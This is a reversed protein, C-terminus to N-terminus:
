WRVATFYELSTGGTLLLAALRRQGMLRQARAIRAEREDSGIPRAEARRSSLAALSPPLDGWQQPDADPREEPRYTAGVAAAASLGLFTRRSVPM